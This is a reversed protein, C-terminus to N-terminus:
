LAEVGVATPHIGNVIVIVAVLLFIEVFYNGPCYFVCAITHVSDMQVIDTEATRSLLVIRRRFYCGSAGNGLEAALNIHGDLSHIRIDDQRRCKHRFRVALIVIALIRCLHAPVHIYENRHYIEACVAVAASPLGPGPIYRVMEGGLAGGCM